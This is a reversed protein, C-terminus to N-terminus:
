GNFVAGDAYVVAARRDAVYKSAIIHQVLELKSYKKRVISVSGDMTDLDAAAFSLTGLSVGTIQVEAYVPAGYIDTGSAWKIYDGPIVGSVQSLDLVKISTGTPDITYDVINSLVVADPNSM